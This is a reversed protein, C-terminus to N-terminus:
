KRNRTGGEGTWPVDSHSRLALGINVDNKSTPNTKTEPFDNIESPLSLHFTSFRLFECSFQEEREEV